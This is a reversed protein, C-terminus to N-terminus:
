LGETDDEKETKGSPSLIGVRVYQVEGKLLKILDARNVVLSKGGEVGEDPTFGYLSTGAKSIRMFITPPYEKKEAMKNNKKGQYEWLVRANNVCLPIIVKSDLDLQTEDM